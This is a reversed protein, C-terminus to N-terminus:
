TDLFSCGIQGKYQAAFRGILERSVNKDPVVYEERFTDLEDPANEGASKELRCTADIARSTSRTATLNEYSENSVDAVVYVVEGDTENEVVVELVDRSTSATLRSSLWAEYLTANSRRSPATAKAEASWSEKDDGFVDISKAREVLGTAVGGVTDVFDGAESVMDLVTEDDSDAAVPAPVVLALAVLVVTALTAARQTRTM